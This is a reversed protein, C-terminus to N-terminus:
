MSLTYFITNNNTGLFISLSHAACYNIREYARNFKNLKCESNGCLSVSYVRTYYNNYNINYYYTRANM